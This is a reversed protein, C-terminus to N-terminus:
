KVIKAVSNCSSRSVNQGNILVICDNTQLDALEAASGLVCDDNIYFGISSVHSSAGFGMVFRRCKTIVDSSCGIGDTM